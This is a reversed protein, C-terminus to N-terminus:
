LVNSKPSDKHVTSFENLADFPPLLSPQGFSICFTSQKVTLIANQNQFVKFVKYIETAKTVSVVHPVNLQRSETKTATTLHKNEM